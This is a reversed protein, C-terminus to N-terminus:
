GGLGPKPKGFCVEADDIGIGDIGRRPAGEMGAAGFRGLDAPLDRGFGDTFVAVEHLTM